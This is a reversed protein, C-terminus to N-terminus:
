ATYREKVKEPMHDGCYYNGYDGAPGYVAPLRCGTECCIKGKIPYMKIKNEPPNPPNGKNLKTKNQKAIRNGNPNGNPDSHSGWRKRAGKLGAKVADQMRKKAARYEKTVRKHVFGTETKSFKKEVEPWVKEFNEGANSLTAIARSDLECKGKNQYMYFILTCYIGRQEATMLQFDLDGTFHSPTLDFHDPESKAM